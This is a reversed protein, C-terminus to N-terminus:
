DALKMFQEKTLKCQEIIGMLTGRDLEKHLPVVTRRGDPHRLVVHSGSQRAARFGAKNLAKIVEIGSLLPLKRGKSM